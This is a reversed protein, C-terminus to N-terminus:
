WWWSGQQAPAQGLRANLEQITKTLEAIQEQLQKNQEKLEENQKRLSSKNDDKDVREAALREKRAQRTEERIADAEAEAVPDRYGRNNSIATGVLTGAAFGGFGAATAHGHDAYIGNAALVLALISTIRKM